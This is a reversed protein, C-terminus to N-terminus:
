KLSFTTTELDRSNPGVMVEFEGSEITFKGNSLYYGLDEPKLQFTVKESGGTKLNIKQFGKLEIVPRTEKSVLDRVYLQVIEDGDRDGVNSVNITIELVGNTDLSTKNLSLDSYSFETYSLGYGFPYLAM